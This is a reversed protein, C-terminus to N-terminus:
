NSSALPVCVRLVTGGGERPKLWWSHAVEDLLESGLGPKAKKSVGKGDDEVFIDIFGPVKINCHVWATQAKGHIASNSIAEKIIENAVISAWKDKALAIASPTKLALKVEIVGKWTSRIDRLSKELNFTSRESPAIGKRAQSIHDRVRRLDEKNLPTESNLRALAASLSAQVIGHLRLAIDRREVWVQQSVLALEREIRKNNKEVAELYRERNFDQVVILGNFTQNLVYVTGFIASVWFFDEEPFEAAQLSYVFFFIPISTVVFLEVFGSSAKIPPLYSLFYRGALQLLFAALALSIGFFLWESGEFIYFIFPVTALLVVLSPLPRIALHPSVLPPLSFLTRRSIPAFVKPDNLTKASGKFSQTLPRVKQELLDRTDEIIKEKQSKDIEKSALLQALQSLRPEIVQSITNQIERQTKRISEKAEKRLTELKRTSIQLQRSAELYGRQSEFFSVLFSFLITGQVIGSLIRVALDFEGQLEWVYSLWGITTVRVIGLIAAVSLNLYPNPRERLVRDLFTLRFVIAIATALLHGITWVALWLWSPSDYAIVDLSIQLFFLLLYSWWFLRWSFLGPGSIRSLFESRRWDLIM